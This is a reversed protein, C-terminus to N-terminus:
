PKPFEAWVVTRQGDLRHGWRSALADVIHLGRGSEAEPDLRLAPSAGDAGDDGVEARLTKEGALLAITIKGGRGSATHRIGNVALEDVVLVMDDFTEDGPALQGPVLTDRLFARARRVSHDVGPLTLRALSSLESV